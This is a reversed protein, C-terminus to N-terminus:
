NGSEEGWSIITVKVKGVGDKVLGLKLAAGYSLDIDRGGIFPGRDNVRVDISRGTPPYSIKLVTGFPLTKHAASIGFMDFTEGNATLKGHFDEGYYSATLIAMHKSGKLLLAEPRYREKSDRSTPKSEEIDRSHYRPAPACGFLILLLMVLAFRRRM